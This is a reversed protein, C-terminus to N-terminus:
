STNVVGGREGSGLTMDHPGQRTSKKELHCVFRQTWKRLPLSASVERNIKKETKPDMTSHPMSFCEKTPDNFEGPVVLGDSM